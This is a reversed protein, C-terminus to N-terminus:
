RNLAIRRISSPQDTRERDATSTSRRAAESATDATNVNSNEQTQKSLHALWVARDHEYEQAHKIRMEQWETFAAERKTALEAEHKAVLVAAKADKKSQLHAGVAGGISPLTVALVVIMWMVTSKKITDPSTHLPVTQGSTIVPISAQVRKRWADKIKGNIGGSRLFIMYLVVSCCALLLGLSFWLQPVSNIFKMM